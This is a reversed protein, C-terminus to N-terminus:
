KVAVYRWQFDNTGMPALEVNGRSAWVGTLNTDNLIAGNLRTSWLFAGSLNTDLMYAGSLDAHSLDAGSLDARPLFAHSLYAGSLDAKPIHVKSLDPVSTERALAGRRGIVTLATQIDTAPPGEGTETRTGDRVFACLTELTAQKYVTSKELVNALAYIGGVRMIVHPAALRELAKDFQNALQTESTARAQLSAQQQQQSFQLYTFASGILVAGIGSSSKGSVRAFITKSTQAPRRIVSACAIWM